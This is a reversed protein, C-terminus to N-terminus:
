GLGVLQAMVCEEWKLQLVEMGAQQSQIQTQLLVAFVKGAEALSWQGDCDEQVGHGAPLHNFKQQSLCMRCGLGTRPPRVEVCAYIVRR